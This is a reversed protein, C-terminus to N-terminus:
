MYMSLHKDDDKQLLTKKYRECARKYIEKSIINKIEKGFTKYALELKLFQFLLLISGGFKPFDNKQFDEKSLTFSLKLDEDLLKKEFILKLDESDYDVLDFRWPFRRELGPNKNLIMEEIEKKYGVLMCVFQDGKEPHNLNYVLTDIIKKGFGDNHRDGIAYAEDILLTCNKKVAKDILAQTQKESWGVYEGTLTVHNARIIEESELNGTISFLKALYESLMSKGAGSPGTIIVHNLVNKKFTQCQFLIFRTLQEKVASLGVMQSIDKLIPYIKPLLLCDRYNTDDKGLFLKEALNLLDSFNRIEPPEEKTSRLKKKPTKKQEINKPPEWDLDDEEDADDDEEQEEEQRKHKMKKKKLFM